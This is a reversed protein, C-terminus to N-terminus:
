GVVSVRPQPDCVRQIIVILHMHNSVKMGKRSARGLLRKRAKGRVVEDMELTWSFLTRGSANITVLDVLSFLHSSSAPRRRSANLEWTISASPACSVLLGAILFRLM